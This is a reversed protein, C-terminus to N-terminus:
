GSANDPEKSKALAAALRDVALSYKAYLHPKWNGQDFYGGGRDLLRDNEAVFLAGARVLNSIEDKPKWWQAEWPWGVPVGDDGLPARRDSDWHLYILGAASLERDRHHRDHASSWGEVEIQRQREAAIMERARDAMEDLKPAPNRPM